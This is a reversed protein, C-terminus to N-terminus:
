ETHILTKDAHTKCCSHTQDRCVKFSPILHYHAMTHTHPASGPDALAVLVTLWQAM